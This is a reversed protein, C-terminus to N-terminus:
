FQAFKNIIRFCSFKQVLKDGLDKSGFVVPYTALWEGEKDYIKLEYESKIIYVSYTDKDAKSPDIVRHKKFSTTLTFGAFLLTWYIARKM